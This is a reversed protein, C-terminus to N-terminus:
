VQILKCLQRELDTTFTSPNADSDISLHSLVHGGQYALSYNTNHLYDQAARYVFEEFEKNIGIVSNCYPNHEKHVFYEMLSFLASNTKQTRKLESKLVFALSAPKFTPKRQRKSTVEFLLEELEDTKLNHLFSFDYGHKNLKKIAREKRSNQLKVSEIFSRFLDIGLLDRILKFVQEKPMGKKTAFSKSLTDRPLKWQSEIDPTKNGRSKNYSSLAIALNESHLLGIFEKNAVPYIHSIHFDTSCKGNILGSYKIKSKYLDYLELLTELTHGQLIQVTQARICERYIYEGFSSKEFKLDRRLQRREKSLERAIKKANNANEEKCIRSCFKKDKRHPIFSSLCNMCPIATYSVKPRTM